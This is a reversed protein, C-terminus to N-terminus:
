PFNQKKQLMFHYLKDCRQLFEAQQKPTLPIIKITQAKNKFSM